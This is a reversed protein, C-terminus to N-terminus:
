SGPGAQHAPGIEQRVRWLCLCMGFLDAQIWAEAWRRGGEGYVSVYHHVGM